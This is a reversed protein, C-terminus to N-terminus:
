NREKLGLQWRLQVTGRSRSTPGCCSLRQIAKGETEAGCMTEMNGGTLIKSVRRFLVSADMNQDEKKLTMHDTFQVKPIGLNPALIWM